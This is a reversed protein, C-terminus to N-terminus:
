AGHNAPAILDTGPAIAVPNIPRAVGVTGHSSVRDSGSGTSVADDDHGCILLRGFQLDAIPFRCHSLGAEDFKSAGKRGRPRGCFTHKIPLLKVLVHWLGTQTLLTSAAHIASHRETM